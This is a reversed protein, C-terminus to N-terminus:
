VEEWTEMYCSQAPHGQEGEEETGVLLQPQDRPEEVKGTTKEGAYGIRESEFVQSKKKRKRNVRVSVMLWSVRLRHLASGQSPRLVSDLSPHVEGMGGVEGGFKFDQSRIYKRM